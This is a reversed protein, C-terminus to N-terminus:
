KAYLEDKNLGEIIQRTKQSGLMFLTDLISLRAVFDNGPQPYSVEKCNQFQISINNKLFLSNELYCEAAPGSFYINCNNSKCLQIIASNKESPLKCNSEYIIKTTLQLEKIFLNFFDMNIDILYKHNKAYISQIKPFFYNFYPAKRYNFEMARLHKEKWNQENDIIKENIKTSYYDKKLPIILWIYGGNINKIRNRNIWSNKEYQLNDAIAFVDVEYIQNFVGVWPIFFSQLSALKM